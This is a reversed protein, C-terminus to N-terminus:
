DHIDGKTHKKIPRTGKKIEIYHQMLIGYDYVRVEDLMHKESPVVGFLLMRTGMHEFAVSGQNSSRLVDLEWVLEGHPSVLSLLIAVVATM